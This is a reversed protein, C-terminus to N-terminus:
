KVFSIKEWSFMDGDVACGDKILEAKNEPLLGKVRAKNENKLIAEYHKMLIEHKQRKVNLDHVTLTGKITDMFNIM